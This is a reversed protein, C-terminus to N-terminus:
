LIGDVTVPVWLFICKGEAELHTYFLSNFERESDLVCTSCHGLCVAMVSSSLGRIIAVSATVM